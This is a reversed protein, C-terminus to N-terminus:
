YTPHIASMERRVGCGARCSIAMGGGRWGGLMGGAKRLGDDGAAKPAVPLPFVYPCLLDSLEARGYLRRCASSDTEV